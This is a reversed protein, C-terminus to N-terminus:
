KVFCKKIVTRSSMVNSKRDSTSNSHSIDQVEFEKRESEQREGDTVDNWRPSGKFRGTEGANSNHESTM